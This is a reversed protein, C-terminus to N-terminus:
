DLVSMDEAPGPFLDHHGCVPNIHREIIDLVLDQPRCEIVRAHMICDIAGRETARVQHALGPLWGRQVLIQVACGTGIDVIRAAHGDGVAAEDDGGDIVPESGIEAPRFLGDDVMQQFIGISAKGRLDPGIRLDAGM